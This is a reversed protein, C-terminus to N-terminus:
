RHNLFLGVGYDCQGIHEMHFENRRGVGGFQGPANLFAVTAQSGPGTWAPNATNGSNTLFLAAPNSTGQNVGNKLLTNTSAFYSLNYVGGVFDTDTVTFAASASRQSLTICITCVLLLCVQLLKGKYRNFIMPTMMTALLFICKEQKAKM